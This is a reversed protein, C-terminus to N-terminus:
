DPGALDSTQLNPPLRVDDLLTLLQGATEANAVTGVIQDFEAGLERRQLALMVVDAETLEPAVRLHLFFARMAHGVWDSPRAPGVLKVLERFIGAARRLDGLQHALELAKDYWHESVGRDGLSASLWALSHCVGLMGSRNGAAEFRVLARRFYDAAAINNGAAAAIEGLEGLCHAQGTSDGLSKRLDLSRTQWQRADDLEGRRRALIGLEGFAAALGSRDKRRRSAALSMRYWREAADLDNQDFALIGLMLHIGGTNRPGTALAKHLLAEAQKYDGRRHAIMALEHQQVAIADSDGRREAAALLQQYRAQADDYDGRDYANNALWHTLTEAWPSSEDIGALTETYVHREWEWYGWARLRGCANDLLAEALKLEGAYVAHHVAELQQTVRTLNLRSFVLATFLYATQYIYDNVARRHAETLVEAAALRTVEQAIWRHVRYVNRGSASPAPVLLGLAVLTAVAPEFEAPVGVPVRGVGFFARMARLDPAPDDPTGGSWATRRADKIVLKMEEMIREMAATAAQYREDDAGVLGDGVQAALSIEDVTQRYVSAGVLLSRALPVRDVKDLLDALLVDDAALAVAESLQRDLRDAGAEALWAAPDGIGRERLLREIRDAVEPFRAAGSQLLADLYELSRPHGGMDRVVRKRDDAPLADLAPLRWLLKRSEASSLPGLHHIVWQDTPVPFPRRSTVVLRGPWLEFLEAVAPAPVGDGHDDEFDDMLLCVSAPVAGLRQQWPQTGDGLAEDGLQDAVALMIQDVTVRGELSVVSDAHDSLLQRALASKGVGGIGYVLVKRRDGRSLLRLEARRGVFGGVRGAPMSATQDSTTFLPQPATTFLAASAWEGSDQLRRRAAALATVPEPHEALSAYFAAALDAAYRDSVPASMALVAAVGHRLLSQALGPLGEPRAVATSCGALVVLLPRDPPLVEDALRSATVLDLQGDDTELALAGPRAHCSIHLVHYRDARLAERIAAPTGWDLIRVKARGSQRATDVADQIRSLEYEYDLLNVGSQEPCGVVALVRLPGRPADTVLRGAGVRYLEVGPHLALPVDSGPLTIAEWLTNGLPQDIDMGLRLPIGGDVMSLIKEAVPGALYREGLARGLALLDERSRYTQWLLPPLLAKPHFLVPDGDATLLVRDAAIKLIASHAM